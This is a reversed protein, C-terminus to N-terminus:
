RVKAESISLSSISYRFAVPKKFVGGAPFALLPSGSPWLASQDFAPLHHALSGLEAQPGLHGDGALLDFRGTLQKSPRLLLQRGFGIDARLGNPVELTAITVRRPKDGYNLLSEFGGADGEDLLVALAGSLPKSFLQLCCGTKGPGASESALIM